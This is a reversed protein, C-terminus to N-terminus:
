ILKKYVMNLLNLLRLTLNLTKPANRTSQEHYSEWQVILSGLISRILPSCKNFSSNEDSIQFNMVYELLMWLIQNDYDNDIIKQVNM